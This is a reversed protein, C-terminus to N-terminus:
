QFIYNWGLSWVFTNWSIQHTFIVQLASSKSLRNIYLGSLGYSFSRGRELSLTSDDTVWNIVRFTLPVGLGVESVSTTRYIVGPSLSLAYWQQRRLTDPIKASTGTTHLAGGALEMSHSWQWRIHRTPKRYTLNVGLGQFQTELQEVDNGRQAQIAEQWIMAEFGLEFYSKGISIKRPPPAKVRSKTIEAPSVRPLLVFSM